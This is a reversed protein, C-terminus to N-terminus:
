ASCDLASANKVVATVVVIDGPRYSGRDTVVSMGVQRTSCTPVANTAAATPAGASRRASGPAVTTGPGPPVPVLSVLPADEVTTTTTAVAGVAGDATVKSPEGDAPRSVLAYAAGASIALAAAVVAAVARRRPKTVSESLGM